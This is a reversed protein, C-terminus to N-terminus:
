RRENGVGLDRADVAALQGEGVRMRVDPDDEFSARPQFPLTAAREVRPAVAVQIWGAVDLSPRGITGRIDQAGAACVSERQVEATVDDTGPLARRTLRPADAHPM